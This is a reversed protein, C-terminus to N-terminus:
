TADDYSPPSLLHGENVEEHNQVNNIIGQEEYRPLYDSSQREVFWADQARRIIQQFSAGSGELFRITIQGHDHSGDTFHAITAQWYPAWLIPVVYKGTSLKELPVSLSDLENHLTHSVFVLRRSSIVCTGRSELIRQAPFFELRVNCDKFSTAIRENPLTRVTCAISGRTDSHNVTAM